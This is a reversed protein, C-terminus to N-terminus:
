FLNVIVMMLSFSWFMKSVVCAVGVFFDSLFYFDVHLFFVFFSFELLSCDLAWYDPLGVFADYNTPYHNFWLIFHGEITFVLFFSDTERDISLFILVAFGRARLLLLLIRMSGTSDPALGWATGHLLGFFYRIFTYELVAEKFVLVTLVFFCYLIPLFSILDAGMRFYIRRKRSTGTITLLITCSLLAERVWCNRLLM